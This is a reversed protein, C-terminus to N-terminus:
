KEQSKNFSSPLYRIRLKSCPDHEIEGATRDPGIYFIIEWTNWDRNYEEIVATDTTEM